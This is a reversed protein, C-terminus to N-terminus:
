IAIFTDHPITMYVNNCLVIYADKWECCQRLGSLSATGNNCYKKCWHSCVNILSQYNNSDVKKFKNENDKM